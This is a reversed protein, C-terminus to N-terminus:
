DKKFSIRFETGKGPNSKIDLKAENLELFQKVMMLGLGTGTEMGTGLNSLIQEQSLKLEEIKEKSIGTGQDIIILTVFNEDVLYKIFIDKGSYSFKLANSILNHLIVSLHGKDVKIKPIFEPEEVKIKIDKFNAGAKYIEIVTLVNSPLDVVVPNVLVGDLQSHSWQLLNDIMVLTANVQEKLKSNLIKFDEPSIMESENMALLQQISLIPSRLDHSIIAFLKDKNANLSDLAINRKLIIEHNREIVENKQRLEESFVEKQRSNKWILFLIVVLLIALLIVGFLQLRTLALEKEKLIVEDNLRKNELEKEELHMINVQQATKISYLSDRYKQNISLSEFAAELNNQAKYINSLIATNRELDWISESGKAFAVARLAYKEALNIEGLELYAQAVGAYAYSKEWDNANMSDKIVEQHYNLAKSYKKQQFAVEGSKNYYHHKIGTLDYREAVVFAKNLVKEANAYDNLELYSIGQNIYASGTLQPKEIKEYIRLVQEFIKLAETHRDIAQIVLGQGKLSKAIGEGNKSKRYLDLADLFHTLSDDYEGKIYYIWGAAYLVEATLSSDKLELSEKYAKSLLGLAGSYDKYVLEKSEEIQKYVLDRDINQRFINASLSTSISFTLFFFVLTYKM